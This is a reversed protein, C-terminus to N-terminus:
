LQPAYARAIADLDPNTASSRLNSFLDGVRDLGRGSRELAEITNAFTAPAANGAIAAIEALEDAMTRDFAPPFHAPRIRDFPPLGFPTAWDEFLPNDMM